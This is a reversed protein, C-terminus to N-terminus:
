DEHKAAQLATIIANFITIIRRRSSDNMSGDNIAKLVRAKYANAETLLVDEGVAAAMSQLFSLEPNQGKKAARDAKIAAKVALVTPNDMESVKQQLEASQHKIRDFASLSLKNAAIKAQIEPPADLAAILLRIEEVSKGTVKALREDSTGGFKALKLRAAMELLPVDEQVNDALMMEILEAENEPKRYVIGRITGTNMARMATVRRHGGWVFWANVGTRGDPDDGAYVKIPTLQGVARISAQLDTTDHIEGRPNLMGLLTDSAKVFHVETLKLLQIEGNTMRVTDVSM